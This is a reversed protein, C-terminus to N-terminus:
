IEEKKKNVLRMRVHLIGDEDYPESETRFGFSSYFAELWKQASIIVDEDPWKEKCFRLVYEMMRRGTGQNRFTAEVVVRGVSVGEYKLGPPLCRATCIIKDDHRGLLHFSDKDFDDPDLYICQQEVVFVKSRLQLIAFLETTTLEHFHKVEFQM